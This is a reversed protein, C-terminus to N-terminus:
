SAQGTTAAPDAPAASTVRPFTMGTATEFAAVVASPDLGATETRAKLATVDSSIADIAGQVGPIADLAPKATEYTAKFEPWLQDFESQAGTAIHAAANLNWGYEHVAALVLHVLFIAASVILFGLIVAAQIGGHPLHNGPDVWAFVPGAVGLVAAVARILWAPVGAPAAPLVTPATQTM